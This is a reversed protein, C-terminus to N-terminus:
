VESMRSCVGSSLMSKSKIRSFGCSIANERASRAFCNPPACPHGCCMCVKGIIFFEILLETLNVIGFDGDLVRDPLAIQAAARGALGQGDVARRAVTEALVEVARGDLHKAVRLLRDAVGHVVAVDNDVAARAIDAAVAHAAPADKDLAVATVAAADM